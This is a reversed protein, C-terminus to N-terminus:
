QISNKNNFEYNVRAIFVLVLIYVAPIWTGTVRTGIGPNGLSHILVPYISAILIARYQNSKPIKYANAILSIFILIFPILGLLGCGFYSSLFGNHLGIVQNGILSKVFTNEGVFFGTGYLQRGESSIYEIASEWMVSRGSSKDTDFKGNEIAGGKGGFITNNILNEFGYIFSAFIAVFIFAIAFKKYKRNQFAMSLIGAVIGLYGTVSKCLVTIISSCFKMYKKCPGFLILIFFITAPFQCKYFAYEMGSSILGSVFFFVIVCFFVYCGQKVTNINGGNTFSTAVVDFILLFFWICEVARYLSLIPNPSWLSSLACIGYYIFFYSLGHNCCLKLLKRKGKHKYLDWISYSGAIFAYAAYVLATSDIAAADERQRSFVFQVIFYGLLLLCPTGGIKKVFVM